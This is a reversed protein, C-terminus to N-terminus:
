IGMNFADKQIFIPFFHKHFSVSTGLSQARCLSIGEGLRASKWRLRGKRQAPLLSSPRGIDPQKPSDLGEGGTRMPSGGGVPPMLVRSHSIFAHPPNIDQYGQAPKQSNFKASILRLGALTTNLQDQHLWATEM